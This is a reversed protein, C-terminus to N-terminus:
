GRDGDATEQIPNPWHRPLPFVLWEWEPRVAPLWRLFEGLLRAGGGMRIGVADIAVLM